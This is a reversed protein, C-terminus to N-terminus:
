FQDAYRSNATLEYNPTAKIKKMQNDIISMDKLKDMMEDSVTQM